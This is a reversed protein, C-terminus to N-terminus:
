KRTKTKKKDKYQSHILNTIDDNSRERYTGSIINGNKSSIEAEGKGEGIALTLEM